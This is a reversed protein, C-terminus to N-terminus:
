ATTEVWRFFILWDFQIIEGFLSSFLVYIFGGGLYETTLWVYGRVIGWREQFIGDLIPPDQIAINTSRVINMEGTQNGPVWTLMVLDDFECVKHVELRRAHFVITLYRLNSDFYM